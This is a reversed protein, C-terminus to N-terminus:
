CLKKGIRQNSRESILDSDIPTQNTGGHNILEHNHKVILKTVWHKRPLLIPFRVNHVLCESHNLRSNSKLICDSDIKPNLQALKSIVSIQRGKSLNNYESQIQTTQIIYNEADQIESLSLEKELRRKSRKVQCNDIFRNAWAHIRVAHNWNSLNEPKLRSGQSDTTAVFSLNETQSTKRKMKVKPM